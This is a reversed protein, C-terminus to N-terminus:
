HASTMMVMVDMVMVNLMKVVMVMMVKVMQMKVIMQTVVRMLDRNRGTFFVLSKINTM